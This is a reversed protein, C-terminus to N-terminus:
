NHNSIHDFLKSNLEELKEEHRDVAKITNKLDARIAGWLSAAGVLSGVGSIIWHMFENSLM